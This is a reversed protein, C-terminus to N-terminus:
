ELKMIVEALRDEGYYEIWAPDVAAHYAFAQRARDIDPARRKCEPWLVQMDIGRQISWWREILWRIMRHVNAM